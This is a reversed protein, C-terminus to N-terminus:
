VLVIKGERLLFEGERIKMPKNTLKNKFEISEKQRVSEVMGIWKGDKSYVPLGILLKTIKKGLDLIQSIKYALVGFAFSLLVNIGFWTLDAYENGAIVQRGSDLILWLILVAAGSLFYKRIYYGRRLQIADVSKGIVFSISSLALFFLMQGVTDSARQILTRSGLNSFDSLSAWLGFIFLLITMLYFPFSVRQLSLSSTVSRVAGAIRHELGTAKLIMYIGVVIFMSKLFLDEANMFALIGGLLVVVGPVLIFTRTFDPDQLARKITYYTSEVESAQSVIITEKSIVPARSQLIPLVQDDEAGDTVLVFGTAPFADLVTELQQSIKRDSEFGTKGHGTLIAVQANVTKKVEEYKKVAGFISNSDSDTPDALGLKAAAKICADKGIVPGLVGAKKGLDNDRDVCLVLINETKEM